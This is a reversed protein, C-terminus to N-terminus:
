NLYLNILGVLYISALGTNLAVLSKENWLWSIIALGGNGVLFIYCYFPYLGLAAVLDNGALDKFSGTNIDIVVPSGDGVAQASFYLMKVRSAEPLRVEFIDLEARIVESGALSIQNAETDNVFMSVNRIFASGFNQNEARTSLTENSTITLISTGFNFVASDVGPPSTDPFETIPIGYTQVVDNVSLDHFAGENLNLVTAQGDGGPTGSMQILAARQVETLKFVLITSSVNSITAGVLSVNVDHAAGSNSVMIRDFNIPFPSYAYQGTLYGAVTTDVTESMNLILEGETLKLKVNLVTPPTTDGIETMTTNISEIIPNEGM